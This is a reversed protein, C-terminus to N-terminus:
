ASKRRDPTRRPRGRREQRRKVWQRVNTAVNRAITDVALRMPVYALMLGVVITAALFALAIILTLPM